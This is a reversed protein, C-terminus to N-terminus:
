AAAALTVPGIAQFHWNGLADRHSRWNVALAMAMQGPRYATLALDAIPEPVGELSRWDRKGALFPCQELALEACAPHMWPDAWCERDVLDAPGIFAIPSRRIRAGCIGCLGKTACLDVHAQDLAKFDIPSRTADVMFPVVLRGVTPRSDLVPSM